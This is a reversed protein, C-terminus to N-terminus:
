IFVIPGAATALFAAIGQVGDVLADLEKEDIDFLEMSHACANITVEGVSKAQAFLDSWHTGAAKTARVASAADGAEAAVGHDTYLDGARFARLAWYQLLIDVRRGMAAAGVALIAASSLRDDTGSFLIVSLTEDSDV